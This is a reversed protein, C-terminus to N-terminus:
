NSNRNSYMETYFDMIEELSRETEKVNGEFFFFCLTFFEKEFAPTKRERTKKCYSFAAIIELGSLGTQRSFASERKVM